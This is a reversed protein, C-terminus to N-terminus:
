TTKSTYEWIIIYHKSTFSYLNTLLSQGITKLLSENTKLNNHQPFNHREATSKM